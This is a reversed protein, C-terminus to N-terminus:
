TPWFWEHREHDVCILRHEYGLGEMLGIVDDETKGYLDALFRDHISVILQPRHETLTAAMGALAFLEGGEIDMMVLGPPPLDLDDLRYQPSVAAHEWIHRFGHAPRIEGFAVNPWVGTFEPDYDPNAETTQDSALGVVCRLPPRDVNAEWHLRIQPWVWPNPEVLVVEAGWTGWLAPFDGEEAGVDWVVMGPTILSNAAALTQAEWWPWSERAARHPLLQLPWRGNVLTPILDSM